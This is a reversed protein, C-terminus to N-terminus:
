TGLWVIQPRDLLYDTVWFIMSTDVQLKAKLSTIQVMGAWVENPKNKQLRSELKRRNERLRVKVEKQVRRMQEKDKQRFAQRKQETTGVVCGGSHHVKPLTSCLPVHNFDGLIVSFADPHWTQRRTIAPHLIDAAPPIYVVVVVAVTFERSAYYPHLGVALLQTNPFCHREKM